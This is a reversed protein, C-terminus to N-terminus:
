QGTPLFVSFTSGEKPSSKVKLYGGQESIIQRALYLGIGVGETDHVTASRYFRGFILPQEEESIGIGDDSIDIRFFLEYQAASLQVRGGRPTYKIANDVINYLAEATWKLDFCAAGKTEEMLLSVGKKAAQSSAQELVKYILLEAGQMKPSLVFVGSELRSTKILSDILFALKQAQASLAEVCPMSEESLEQEKLLQVYLLINSIPTKTQHSIDAILMKVKDREQEMNKASVESSSLYNAMKEEVASLLSEDFVSESFTGNEAMELMTKLRNMIKTNKYATYVAFVVSIVFFLVSLVFLFLTWINM